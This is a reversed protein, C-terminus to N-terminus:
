LPHFLDIFKNMYGQLTQFNSAVFGVPTNMEHAVGRPWSDQDLAMKESQVLQSQMEKLHHNAEELETVARRLEEASQQQITIDRSIVYYLLRDKITVRYGSSEFVVEQGNPCNMRFVLNKVNAVGMVMNDWAQSVKPVDEPHIMDYPSFDHKDLDSFYAEWAPNTWHVNFNEDMLCILNHTGEALLRLREESERLAEIMEKRQTIDLGYINLYNLGVVPALTLDYTVSGVTVEVSRIAKNEYTEIVMDLWPQPLQTGVLCKWSALLAHSAINAYLIKGDASIRLAPSPDEEPFKALSIVREEAEKRATVDLHTGAMRLPQGQRDRAMVRGSSMIWRWGGDKAKMRFEVRYRPIEMALHQNLVEKISEEDDPHVLSFCGEITPELEDLRYGLMQAWRESCVVQGTTIDWDWLGIEAARITMDFRQQGEMLASELGQIETRDEVVGLLFHSQFHISCRCFLTNGKSTVVRYDVTWGQQQEIMSNLKQHLSARDCEHVQNLFTELGGGLSDEPWGYLRTLSESWEMQDSQIDLVWCALGMAEQALALLAPAQAEYTLLHDM